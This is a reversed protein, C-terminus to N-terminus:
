KRIKESPMSKNDGGGPNSFEYKNLRPYTPRSNDLKTEQNKPIRSLLDDM